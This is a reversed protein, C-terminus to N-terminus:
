GSRDAPRRTRDLLWFAAGTGTGYALHASLDRALTKADYKWIPQDLGAEPLVLYGSTWVAIGFPLGGGRGDHRRRQRHDLLGDDVM